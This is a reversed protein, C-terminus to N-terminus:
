GTVDTFFHRPRISQDSPTSFSPLNLRHSRTFFHHNLPPQLAPNSRRRFAPNFRTRPRAVLHDRRTATDYYNFAPPARRAHRDPPTRPNFIPTFVSAARPHTLHRLLRLRSARHSLPPAPPAPRNTLRPIAPAAIRRLRQGIEVDVVALYLLRSPTLKRTDPLGRLVGTSPM